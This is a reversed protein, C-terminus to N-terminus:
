SEQKILAPAAAVVCGCGPCCCATAGGIVVVEPPPPATPPSVAAVNTTFAMPMSIPFDPSPSPSLLRGPPNLWAEETPERVHGRNACSASALAVHTQVQNQTSQVGQIAQLLLVRNTTYADLVVQCLCDTGRALQQLTHHRKNPINYFLHEYLLLFSVGSCRTSSSYCCCKLGTSLSVDGALFSAPSGHSINM